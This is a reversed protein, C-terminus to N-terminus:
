RAPAIASSSGTISVAVSSPISCNIAFDDLVLLGVAAFTRLEAEVGNDLGV